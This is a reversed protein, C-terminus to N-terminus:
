LERFCTRSECRIGVMGWFCPALRAVTNTFSPKPGVEHIAEHVGVLM